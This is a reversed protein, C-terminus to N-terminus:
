THTYTKTKKIRSVKKFDSFLKNYKSNMRRVPLHKGSKYNRSDNKIMNDGYSKLNDTNYKKSSRSKGVKFTLLEDKNERKSLKRIKESVSAIFNTNSLTHRKEYLNPLEKLAKRIQKLNCRKFSELAKNNHNNM